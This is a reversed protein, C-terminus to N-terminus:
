HWLSGKTSGNSVTISRIITLWCARVDKLFLFENAFQKEIGAEEVPWSCDEIVNPLRITALINIEQHGSVARQYGGGQGVTIKRSSISRSPKLLPSRDIGFHGKLGQVQRHYIRRHGYATIPFIERFSTEPKESFPKGTQIM